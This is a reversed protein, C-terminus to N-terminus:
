RRRRRNRGGAEGPDVGAAVMFGGGIMRQVLDHVSADHRIWFRGHVYEVEIWAESSYRCTVTLRVPTSPGYLRALALPPAYTRALARRPRRLTDSEADSTTSPAAVPLEPLGNIDMPDM